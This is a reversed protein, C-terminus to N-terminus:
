ATDQPTTGSNNYPPPSQFDSDPRIFSRIPDKRKQSVELEKIEQSVRAHLWPVDLCDPAAKLEDFPWPGEQFGWHASLVWLKEPWSLKRTFRESLGDFAGLQRAGEFIVRLSVADAPDLHM